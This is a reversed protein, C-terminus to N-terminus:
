SDDELPDVFGFGGCEECDVQPLEGTHIGVGLLRLPEGLQRGNISTIEEGYLGGIIMTTLRARKRDVVTTGDPWFLTMTYRPIAPTSM